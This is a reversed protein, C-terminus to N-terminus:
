LQVKIINCSKELRLSEIFVLSGPEWTNGVVEGKFVTFCYPCPSMLLYWELQSTVGFAWAPCPSSSLTWM